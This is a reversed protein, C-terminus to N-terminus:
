NHWRTADAAKKSTALGSTEVHSHRNSWGYKWLSAGKSADCSSLIHRCLARRQRGHYPAFWDLLGEQTCVFCHFIDPMELLGAMSTTLALTDVHVVECTDESTVVWQVSCTYLRRTVRALHLDAHVHRRALEQSLVALVVEVELVLGVVAGLLLSPAHKPRNSRRDPEGVAAHNWPKVTCDPSNYREM